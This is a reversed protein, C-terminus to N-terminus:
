IFSTKLELTLTKTKLYQHFFFKVTLEQCIKNFLMWEEDFTNNDKVFEIIKSVSKATAPICCYPHLNIAETETRKKLTFSKLNWIFNSVGTGDLRPMPIHINAGSKYDNNYNMM